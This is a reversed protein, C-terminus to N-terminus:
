HLNNIFLIFFFLIFGFSIQTGTLAHRELVRVARPVLLRPPAASVRVADAAPEVLVGEVLAHAGAAVGRARVTHIINTQTSYKSVYIRIFRLTSPMPTPFPPRSKRVVNKGRFILIYTKPYKKLRSPELGSM